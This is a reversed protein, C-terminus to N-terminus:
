LINISKWCSYFISMSACYKPGAVFGESTKKNNRRSKLHCRDYERNYVFGNCDDREQCTKQCKPISNDLDDMPIQEKTYLQYATDM